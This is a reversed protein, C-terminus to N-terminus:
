NGFLLTRTPISLIEAVGCAKAILRRSHGNRWLRQRNQDSFGKGIEEDVAAPYHESDGSATTQQSMEHALVQRAKDDDM